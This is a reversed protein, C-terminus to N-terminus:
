SVFSSLIEQCSDFFCLSVVELKWTGVGIGGRMKILEALSYSLIPENGKIHKKHIISALEQNNIIADYKYNNSNLFISGTRNAMDFYSITEIYGSSGQQFGWRCFWHFLLSIPNFYKHTNTRNWGIYDWKWCRSNSQPLYCVKCSGRNSSLFQYRSWVRVSLRSCRFFSWNNVNLFEIHFFASYWWRFTRHWANELWM